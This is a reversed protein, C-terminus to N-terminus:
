AEADTSSRGGFPKRREGKKPASSSPRDSRADKGGKRGPTGPKVGGNSTRRTRGAKGGKM